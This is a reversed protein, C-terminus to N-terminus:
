SSNEVEIVQMSAWFSQFNWRRWQMEFTVPFAILTQIQRGPWNKLDLDGDVTDIVAMRIRRLWERIALAAPLVLAGVIV